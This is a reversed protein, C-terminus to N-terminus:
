KQGVIGIGIAEVRVREREARLGIAQGKRYGDSGLMLFRSYM